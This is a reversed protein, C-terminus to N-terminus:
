GVKRYDIRLEFFNNTLEEVGSKVVWRNDRFETTVPKMINDPGTEGEVPSTSTIEYGEPLVVTVEGFGLAVASWESVFVFNEEANDAHISPVDQNLLNEPIAAVYFSYKIMGNEQTMTKDACGYQNFVLNAMNTAVFDDRKENELFIVYAIGTDQNGNEPLILDLIAEFSKEEQAPRFEQRSLLAVSIIVCVICVFTLTLLTIKTRTKM